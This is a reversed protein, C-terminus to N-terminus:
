AHIVLRNGANERLDCVQQLDLALIGELDTRVAAGGFGKGRPGAGHLAEVLLLQALQRTDPFVEGGLNALQDVRSGARIV